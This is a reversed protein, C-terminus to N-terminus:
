VIKMVPLVLFSITFSIKIKLVLFPSRKISTIAHAPTVTNETNKTFEVKKNNKPDIQEKIFTIDQETLGYKYFEGRLSNSTLMHDFMTVSM